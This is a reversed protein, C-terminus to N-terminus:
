PMLKNSWLDPVVGEGIFKAYQLVLLHLMLHLSDTMNQNASPLASPHVIQCIMLIFFKRIQIKSLQRGQVQSAASWDVALLFGSM